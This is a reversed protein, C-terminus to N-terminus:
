IRLPVNKKSICLVDNRLSNEVWLKGFMIGRKEQMISIKSHVLHCESQFLTYFFLCYRFVINKGQFTVQRKRIYYFCVTVYLQTIIVMLM